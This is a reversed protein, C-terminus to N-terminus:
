CPILSVRGDRLDYYAGVVRLTGALTREALIPWSSRIMQVTMEVNARIANDVLDGPRTRAREVAPRIAEMLRGVHGPAIGQQVAATVAGCHSHGLAAVLTVHLHEVAYELSGLAADDVVNGALRIVFLDGIGQDFLLEPAVRSDSCTLIAAKPHQGAATEQRREATQRPHLMAGTVYRLNGEMLETWVSDSQM